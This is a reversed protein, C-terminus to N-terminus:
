SPRSGVQRQRGSTALCRCLHRPVHLRQDTHHIRVVRPRDIIEVSFRKTQGSPDQQIHATDACVRRRYLRGNVAPPVLVSIRAPPCVRFHNADSKMHPRSKLPVVTLAACRRRVVTTSWNPRMHASRVPMRIPSARFRRRLLRLQAPQMRDHYTCFFPILRDRSYDRSPFM